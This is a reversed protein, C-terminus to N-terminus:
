RNTSHQKNDYICSLTHDRRQYHNFSANQNLFEGRKDGTTTQFVNPSMNTYIENFSFSFRFYSNSIAYTFYPRRLHFKPRDDFHQDTTDAQATILQGGANSWPRLM